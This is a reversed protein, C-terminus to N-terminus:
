FRQFLSWNIRHGHKHSFVIDMGVTLALEHQSRKSADLFYSQWWDWAHRLKSHVLKWLLRQARKHTELDEQQFGNKVSFHFITELNFQLQVSNDGDCYVNKLARRSSALDNKRFSSEVSRKMEPPLSEIILSISSLSSWAMFLEEVM